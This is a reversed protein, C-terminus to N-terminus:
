NIFKFRHKDNLSVIKSCFNHIFFLVIIFALALDYCLFKDAGNSSEFELIKFTFIRNKIIENENIKWKTSEFCFFM